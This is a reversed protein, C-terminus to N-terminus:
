RSFGLGEVRAPDLFRNNPQYIVVTEGPVVDSLHSITSTGVGLCSDVPIMFSLFNDKAWTDPFPPFGEQYANWELYIRAFMGSVEIASVEGCSRYGQQSNEVVLQGGIFRAFQDLFSATNM